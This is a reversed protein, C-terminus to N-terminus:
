RFMYLVQDLGVIALIIVISLLLTISIRRIMLIVDPLIRLFYRKWIAWTLLVMMVPTMNKIDYRGTIYLGDRIIVTM